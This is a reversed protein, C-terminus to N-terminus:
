PVYQVEDDILEMAKAQLIAKTFDQMPKIYKPFFQYLGYEMNWDIDEYERCYKLVQYMTKWDLEFEQQIDKAQKMLWPWNAKDNTWDQIYDTFKRRDTKPEPKFNVPPKPASKMNVFKEYCDQSCFHKAKYRAGHFGQGHGYEKGCFDCVM